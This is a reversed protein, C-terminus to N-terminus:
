KLMAKREKFDPLYKEVTQWFAKSHDFHLLHCLEHVVIYDWVKEPYLMVRWSYNISGKKSCSGFRTKASTIGVKAYKVGMLAAYRETLASLADRAKSKLVKIEADSLEPPKRELAKKQKEEIWKIHSSVFREIEYLPMRLPAHVVLEAERNIEISLTRRKSRRLEYKPLM